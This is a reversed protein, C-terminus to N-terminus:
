ATVSAVPMIINLSYVNDATTIELTGRYKKVILSISKIGFGHNPDQGSRSLPLGDSFELRGVFNNEQHIVLMDGVRKVSLNVIRNEKDPVESVACDANDLINGFLAYIESKSIFALQAGNVIYAFQVNKEKFAISKQELLADLVENGTNIHSGYTELAAKTEAIEAPDGYKELMALGHKLDHYKINIFNISESWKIYQEKERELNYQTIRLQMDKQRRVFLGYQVWLAMVAVIMGYLSITVTLVDSREGFDGVRSVVICAFIMGVSLINMKFDAPQQLKLKAVPRSFFFWALFYPLPNYIVAKVFVAGPFSFDLAPILSFLQTLRSGFHQTAYGATCSAFIDWFKGEYCFMMGAVTVAFLGFYRLFNIFSKLAVTSEDGKDSPFFLGVTICVAVAACLRLAFLKRKPFPYLYINEAALLTIVFSACVIDIM